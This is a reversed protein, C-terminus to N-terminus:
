KKGLNVSGGNEFGSDFDRGLNNYRNINETFESFAKTTTLDVFHCFKEVFTNM